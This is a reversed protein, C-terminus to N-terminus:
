LPPRWAFPTAKLYIRDMYKGDRFGGGCEEAAEAHEDEQAAAPISQSIERLSHTKEPNIPTTPQLIPSGKKEHYYRSLARRWSLHNIALM